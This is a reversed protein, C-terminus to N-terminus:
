KLWDSMATAQRLKSFEKLSTLGLTEVSSKNAFLYSSAFQMKKWERMSSNMLMENLLPHGYEVQTVLVIPSIQLFLEAAELSAKFTDAGLSVTTSPGQVRLLITLFGLIANHLSNQFLVPRAVGTSQLTTLFEMTTEIEGLATGLVFAMKDKLLSLSETPLESFVRQASQAAMMMNPTAKRYDPEDKLFDLEEVTAHAQAILCYAM